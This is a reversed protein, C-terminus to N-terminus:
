EMVEKLNILHFKTEIHDRLEIFLELCKEGEIEIEYKM